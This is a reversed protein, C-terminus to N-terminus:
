GGAFCDRTVLNQRDSEFLTIAATFSGTAISQILLSACFAVLSVTTPVLWCSISSATAGPGMGNGFTSSKGHGVSWSKGVMVGSVATFTVLGDLWLMSTKLCPIPAEQGCVLTEDSMGSSKAECSRENGTMVRGRTAQLIVLVASIGETSASFDKTVTAATPSKLERDSFTIM